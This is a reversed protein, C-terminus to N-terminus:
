GMFGGSWRGNIGVLGSFQGRHGGILEWLYVWFIGVPLGLLHGM